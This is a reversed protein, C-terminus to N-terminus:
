HKPLQIDDHIGYTKDISIGIVCLGCVFRGIDTSLIIIHLYMIQSLTGNAFILAHCSDCRLVLNDTKIVKVTAGFNCLPCAVTRKWSRDISADNSM